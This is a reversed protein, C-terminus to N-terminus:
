DLSLVKTSEEGYQSIMRIAIKQNKKYIRIPHSEFGYLREFADEDIEIKLTREVNRRTGQKQQKM